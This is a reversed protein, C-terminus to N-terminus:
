CQFSAVYLAADKTNRYYVHNTVFHVADTVIIV